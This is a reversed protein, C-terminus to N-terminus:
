LRGQMCGSLVRYFRQLSSGDFCVSLALYWRSNVSIITIVTNIRSVGILYVLLQLGIMMIMIMIIIM